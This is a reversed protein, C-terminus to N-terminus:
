RLYDHGAVLCCVNLAVLALLLPLQRTGATSYLVPLYAAPLLVSAWFGAFQLASVVSGTSSPVPSLAPSSHSM